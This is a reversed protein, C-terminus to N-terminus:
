KNNKTNGTVRNQQKWGVLVFAAGALFLAWSAQRTKAPTLRVDVFLFVFAAIILIAGVIYSTVYGKM